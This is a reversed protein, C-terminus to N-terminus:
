EERERSVALSTGGVIFLAGGIALWFLWDALHGQGTVGGRGGTNPFDGPTPAPTETAELATPSPTDTPEQPEETPEPTPTDTPSPTPTATPTPTPTPTETPTPTPSDTPM